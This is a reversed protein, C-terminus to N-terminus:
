KPMAQAMNLVLIFLASVTTLSFGVATVMMWFILKDLKNNAEKISGNQTKQWEVLNGVRELLPGIQRIEDPHECEHTM